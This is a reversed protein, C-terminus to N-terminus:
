PGENKIKCIIRHLFTSTKKYEKKRNTEISKEALKIFAEDESKYEWVIGNEPDHPLVIEAQGVGMVGGFFSIIPTLWSFILALPIMWFGVFAM